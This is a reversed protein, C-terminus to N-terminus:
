LMSDREPKFQSVTDMKVMQVGGLKKLVNAVNEEHYKTSYNM